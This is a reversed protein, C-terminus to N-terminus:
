KWGINNWVLIFIMNHAGGIMHDYKQALSHSALVHLTCNGGDSMWVCSWCAYPSSQMAVLLTVCHYVVKFVPVSMLSWGWLLQGHVAEVLLFLPYFTHTSCFLIICLDPFHCCPKFFPLTCDHFLHFTQAQHTGQQLCNLVFKLSFHQMMIAPSTHKSLFCSEECWWSLHCSSTKVNQDLVFHCFMSHSWVVKGLCFFSFVIGKARLLM